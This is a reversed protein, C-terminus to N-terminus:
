RLMLCLILVLFGVIGAALFSQPSGKSFSKFLRGFASLSALLFKLLGEVLARDIWAVVHGLVVQARGLLLVGRDIGAQDFFALAKAVRQIPAILLSQYPSNVPFLFALYGLAAPDQGNARRGYLFYAGGLGLAIGGLSLLLVPWQAAAKHAELQLLLREGASSALVLIGKEPSLWTYFWAAEARLAHPSFVFFLAGLGLAALPWKMWGSLALPKALTEQYVPLEKVLRSEGWFVLLYQRGMYFATLLTVLLGVAPLLFALGGGSAAAWSWAGLLIAEKSLFGSTLPLGILALMAVTYIVFVWPFSQRLGGMLRMDQADFPAHYKKEIQHLGAILAGACLFLAAKFFAHTLLHLLAAQYAGVGLALLMLGLQSVTSYALVRKIDTQFCAALAGLLATFAGTCAIFLLVEGTFLFFLKTLLYVGAVVMTAAHILASAPSPGAMADPLWIHLPFQASKALCGIALCFGILALPADAPVDTLAFSFTDFHIFYLIIGVLLAVDGIRNVMFAKQASRRAEPREHWFGILLYSCLGVLEWFVYLLLLNDALVLGLMAFTFLQIYAYYRLIHPEEAMYASSFIQVLLSVLLVMCLMLASFAGAEFGLYLAKDHALPWAVQWQRHQTSDGGIEWAFYCALIWCLGTGLLAVWRHRPQQSPIWFLYLANLLSLALILLPLLM